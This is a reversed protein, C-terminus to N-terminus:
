VHRPGSIELPERDPHMRRPPLSPIVTPVGHRRRAARTGDGATVLPALHRSGGGNAATYATMSPHTCVMHRVDM